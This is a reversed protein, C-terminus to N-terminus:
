FELNVGFIYSKMIPSDASIQLRSGFGPTLEADPNARGNPEPDLGGADVFDSFFAKFPNNATFYVRLSNIGAKNLVSTPINYGLSINRIKMFSGDFYGMTSRFQPFQDGTKPYANTPNEPTWYDVEIQNRRGELSADQHIRSVLLGGVRAFLVVSLDFNKFAFRNTMGGIWDPNLQGLVTRDDEDRIGNGNLDAVKIDGPELGSEFEEAADEEDLQWIGIKKYDYIVDIPEGVFWGNNVDETIGGALETIEENWTTFNVDIQWRFGDSQQPEIAIASVTAEFGKNETKGINQYFTGNVGSMIPLSREQLIDETKQQYYELSSIVRNTFLGFDIGINYTKTFEWTLAPNPLNSVYYGLEGGDPGYSYPIDSLRGLSGYPSVAQNSTQGWGLRFKLNSLFTVDSMFPENHINWGLAAAPYVFWKNGDALRSSGDARGTLTLLYRDGYNYNIRAMYSMLGWKNYDQDPAFQGNDALVQTGLNFNYYQLQDSALDTTFFVQKAWEAQQVSFLGTFNIKHHDAFTRDFLLLNELTYSWRHINEINASNTGSVNLRSGSFQGKKEFSLDLGVNLRYRLGEIIEVEGYLSSFSSLRKRQEEWNDEDYYLLPNINFPEDIHGAYFNENIAGDDTYPKMLPSYALLGGYPNISEGDRLSYSTFTNIGIKIRESAQHDLNLRLSYRTFAQGPMANTERFYAGSALYQTKETGGAFGLEHNTIFGDKLMLDQWNVESGNLISETEDSTFANTGAEQIYDAYEEGDFVDYKALPQSIGAYGNYTVRSQGVKGKKTTIIIVGNSGRSGYIATASADKLIDVSQIDGQNISSLDGQYPIGDLVILPDNNESDASGLSRNGRIRIQMEGGPKSSTRTLQVGAVRGQLAQAVDPAPIENITKSDVTSIAGTVDSKKQTGYGIVVVESLTSVDPTLTMNIVSQNGVDVEEQLYGVYSFVLVPNDGSVSISYDGDIDTVTGSSTGKILVNVGPLGSGTEDLVKGSVERSQANVDVWVISLLLTIALAVVSKLRFFCRSLSHLKPIIRLAVHKM